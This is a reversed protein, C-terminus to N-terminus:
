GPDDDTVRFPWSVEIPERSIGSWDAGYVADSFCGLMLEPVAEHEEIWVDQLGDANLAFRLKVTGDLGSQQQTWREICPVIEDRVEDMQQVLLEKVAGADAPADPRLDKPGDASPAEAPAPSPPPKAPRPKVAPPPVRVRDQKIPKEPPSVDIPAAPPPPPPVTKPPAPAVPEPEVAERTYLLVGLVLFVLLLILSRTRSM